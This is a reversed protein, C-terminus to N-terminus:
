LSYFAKAKPHAKVTDESVGCGNIWLGDFGTLRSLAVYSQGFSFANDLLVEARSLTMGQARHVTLAWGLKLPLQSRRLEGSSGVQRWTDREVKVTHGNDFKVWVCNDEMEEVKGRSGNVLGHSPIKRLLIVQAGKRLRLEKPLRKTMMDALKAKDAAPVTQPGGPIRVFHDKSAYSFEPQNLENLRVENEKDVDRNTCYLKTPVIGDQPRNRCNVHCRNLAQATEPSCRGSRVENLIAVFAPDSAQRISQQLNVVGRDMECRKWAPTEFCFVWNTGQSDDTVPPLQLFDGCVILQIGGFGRADSRVGRAIFELQEFLDPELMSVEDIILVRTNQWRDATAKRSQVRSLLLQSPNRINPDKPDVGLGIGSWSHITQGGISVAALGTPATVAVAGPWQKELEQILYKLLFSKGTGAAGTIFLNEGRLARLATEHQQGTLQSADIIQAAVPPVTPMEALGHDRKMRKSKPPRNSGVISNTTSRPSSQPLSAVNKSPANAAHSKCIELVAKGFEHLKVQGFGNVALLDAETVPCDMALIDLTKNSFIMFPKKNQEKALNARWKRLDAALKDNVLSALGDMMETLSAEPAAQPLHTSSSSGTSAHHTIPPPWTNSNSVTDPWPLTGPNPLPRQPESHAHQRQQNQQYQQHPQPLPEQFQQHQNQQFHQQPHQQLQQQLPRQQLPQEHQQQQQWQLQHHSQMQGVRQQQQQHRQPYQGYQPVQQPQSHNPPHLPNGHAPTSLSQPGINGMDEIDVPNAKTMKGSGVKHSRKTNSGHALQAGDMNSDRKCYHGTSHRLGVVEGGNLTGDQARKWIPLWDVQLSLAPEVPELNCRKTLDVKELHAGFVEEWVQCRSLWALQEDLNRKM